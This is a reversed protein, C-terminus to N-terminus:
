FFQLLSYHITATRNMACQRLPPIPLRAPNLIWHPKGGTHTWSGGGAGHTTYLMEYMTYRSSLLPFFLLPLQLRGSRMRHIFLSYLSRCRPRGAESSSRLRPPLLVGVEPVMLRIYCKTCRIDHPFFHFSFCHSNFGVWNSRSSYLARPYCRTRSPSCGEMM